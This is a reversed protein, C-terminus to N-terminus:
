LDTERYHESSLNIEWHGFVFFLCEHAICWCKPNIQKYILNKLIVSNVQILSLGVIVDSSWISSYQFCCWGSTSPWYYRTITFLNLAAAAVCLWWKDDLMSVSWCIGYVLLWCCTLLFLSKTELILCDLFSIEIEKHRYYTISSNMWGKQIETIGFITEKLCWEM